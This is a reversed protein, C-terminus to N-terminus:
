VHVSEQPWPLNFPHHHEATPPMENWWPRDDPWPRRYEVPIVVRIVVRITGGGITPWCEDIRGPSGLPSETRIVASGPVGLSRAAYIEREAEDVDGSLTFQVDLTM